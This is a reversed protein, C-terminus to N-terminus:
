TPPDWVSQTLLQVGDPIIYSHQVGGSLLLHCEWRGLESNWAFAGVATSNMQKCVWNGSPAGVANVAPVPNRATATLWATPGLLGCNARGYVRYQGPSEPGNAGMCSWNGGLKNLQRADGRSDFCLYGKDCDPAHPYPGDASCLSLPKFAARIPDSVTTNLVCSKPWEATADSCSCILVALCAITQTQGVTAMFLLKRGGM